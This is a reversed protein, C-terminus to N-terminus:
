QKPSAEVKVPKLKELSHGIEIAEISNQSNSYVRLYLDVKLWKKTPLRFTSEVNLSVDEAPRSLNFKIYEEQSYSLRTDSATTTSVSAKVKTSSELDPNLQGEDVFKTDTSVSAPGLSANQRVGAEGSHFPGTTTRGEEPGAWVVGNVWLARNRGTWIVPPESPVFPLTGSLKGDLTRWQYETGWGKPGPSLIKSSEDIVELLTKGDNSFIFVYRAHELGDVGDIPRNSAYRM